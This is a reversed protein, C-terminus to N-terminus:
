RQLPMARWTILRMVYDSVQQNSALARTAGGGFLANALLTQLMGPAGRAASRTSELAPQALVRFNIPPNAARVAIAVVQDLEIGEASVAWDETLRTQGVDLRGATASDEPPFISQIGFRTDVLLLPVDIPVTGRNEITFAVVDGAHLIRGGAEVAVPTRVGNENRVLGVAFGLDGNATEPVKTALQLLNRARVVRRLHDRLLDALGPDNEAAIRFPGPMEATSAGPAAAPNWGTAPLLVVYGDVVRLVWDADNELVVRRALGDTVRPLDAPDPPPLPEPARGRNKMYLYVLYYRHWGYIALISLVFFYLVLILTQPVSM